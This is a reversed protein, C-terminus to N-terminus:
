FLSAQGLLGLVEDATGWALSWGSGGHGYCHVVRGSGASELEVRPTGRVPRFGIRTKFIRAGALRPDIERAAALIREGRERDVTALLENEEYSGGVAIVADNRPVVYQLNAHDDRYWFDAIGPNEALVVYGRVPVVDPDDAMWRARHGTANVVTGREPLGPLNMRTISGGAAEFRTVLWTLYRPPDIVPVRGRLVATLSGFPEGIRTVAPLGAEAVLESWGPTEVGKEAGDGAALVVGDLLTVGVDDSVHSCYERLSARAWGRIQPWNESTPMWLAGAVASTTEVPLDAAIVDTPIGAEALRVACTLGVVGAGVVVVRNSMPGM